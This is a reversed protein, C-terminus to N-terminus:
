YHIDWITICDVNAQCTSNGPETVIECLEGSCEWHFCHSNKLCEHTGNGEVVICAGENCGYYWRDPLTTTTTRNLKPTEICLCGFPHTPGFCGNCEGMDIKISQTSIATQWDCTENYRCIARRKNEDHSCVGNAYTCTVGVDCDEGADIIGNGCLISTSTTSTSTTTTSTTTVTTTTLADALSNEGLERYCIMKWERDLINECIKPDEKHKAFLVICMAKPEIEQISLCKPLEVVKISATPPPGKPVFPPAVEDICGSFIVFLFM